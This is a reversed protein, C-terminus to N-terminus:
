SPRTGCQSCRLTLDSPWRAGAYRVRECLGGTYHYSM